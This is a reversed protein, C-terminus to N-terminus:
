SRALLARVAGVADRAHSVDSSSAAVVYRRLAVPVGALGPVAAHSAAALDLMPQRLPEFDVAGIQRHLLRMAADFAGAAAQLRITTTLPQTPWRAPWTHVSPM